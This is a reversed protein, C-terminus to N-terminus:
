RWHLFYMLSLLGSRSKPITSMDCIVTHMMACALIEAARSIEGGLALRVADLKVDHQELRVLQAHKESRREHLQRKEVLCPASDSHDSAYVTLGRLRRGGPRARTALPLLPPSAAQSRWFWGVGLLM